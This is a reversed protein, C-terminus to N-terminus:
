PSNCYGATKNGLINIFICSNLCLLLHFDVAVKHLSTKGEKCHHKEKKAQRSATFHVAKLMISCKNILGHKVLGGQEYLFQKTTHLQHM